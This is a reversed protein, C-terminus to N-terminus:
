RCREIDEATMVPKYVCEAKAEGLKRGPSGSSMSGVVPAGQKPAAAKGPSQDAAPPAAAPRPTSLIAPKDNSWSSEDVKWEGNEILMRITGYMTDMNRSGGEWPGSVILTGRGSPNVTKRELTFARPMMFQVMKLAAEKHAASLGQMEARRAAPGYKLMEELDGAMAARHFKAYVVEPEEAAPAACPLLAFVAALVSLITPHKM